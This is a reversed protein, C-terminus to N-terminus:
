KIHLYSGKVKVLFEVPNKVLEFIDLKLINLFNYRFLEYSQAQSCITRRTGTHIRM